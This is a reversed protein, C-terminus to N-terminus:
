QRGWDRELLRIVEERTAANPIRTSAADAALEWLGDGFLRVDGANCDHCVLTEVIRAAQEYNIEGDM